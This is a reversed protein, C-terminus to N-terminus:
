LAYVIPLSMSQSPSGKDKFLTRRNLWPEKSWCGPSLSPAGALCRYVTDYTGLFSTLLAPLPDARRLLLLQHPLHGHSESGLGPCKRPHIEQPLLHLGSHVWALLLM